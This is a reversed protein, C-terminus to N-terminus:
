KGLKRVEKVGQDAGDYLGSAGLGFVFGMLVSEVEVGKNVFISFGVGLIVALLGAFRSPLGARKIVEVVGTIVPIIAFEQM